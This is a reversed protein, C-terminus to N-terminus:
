FKVCGKKMSILTKDPRIRIMQSSGSEYWSVNIQIRTGFFFRSLSAYLDVLIM